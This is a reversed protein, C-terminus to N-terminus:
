GYRASPAFYGIVQYGWSGFFPHEMPPLFEVHTYGMRKVYEVLTVALERYTLSYGDPRRLWSGLHVEYTSVPSALWDKNARAEMWAEDAWRYSELDCVVSASKPPVECQFAYPDAKEQRYGHFRSRIFYKYALGVPAGPLFLEWVGGSRRRMPHTRTDWGNFDGIVHVNEANPAWVAFRVGRVDAIETVHAGLTNYAEYHTGEGHLHLDFGSVVPPFRYADDFEATAGDWRVVRIRYPRPAGTLAACYFGHEHRKEMPAAAGDVLVEASNAQPLFARVEWRQQSGRSRVSHPGLIRFADGHYGGVIAEIEEGSM